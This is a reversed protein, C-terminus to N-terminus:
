VFYEKINNKIMDWEEQSSNNKCRNEFWSLFQLNDLDNKGGKSKARIHDLSPRKWKEKGSKIWRAYVKNFQDDNYFKIIYSKYKELSWDYRGDRNTIANNLEKLKEVDDFEMLWESDIDFRLHAAMNKYLSAKPMTKGKAWSTRGKSTKSIKRRHEKTFPRRKGKVVEIGNLELIRKVQHHDVGCIRGVERLTTDHPVYSEIVRRKLEERNLVDDM